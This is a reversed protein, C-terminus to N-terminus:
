SIPTPSPLLPTLEARLEALDPHQLDENFMRWVRPILDVYGPKGGRRSLRAFIGLIRLNRQTAILAAAFHAEDSTMGKATAFRNLCAQAVSPNVDRRADRILSVLDYIPHTAVADQFDLLGVRAEARRKPLWILNEAHYDRLALAPVHDLSQLLTNLTQMAQRAGSSLDTQVQEQYFLFALDSAQAMQAADYRPCGAPPPAKQLSCILDTAACYLSNEKDPDRQIIHAFVADGLDELLLFGHPLDAAIVEPASLGLNHLYTAITHFATIADATDSPDDMLVFPQGNHSLRYYNRASADGALLALSVHAMGNDALFSTIQAARTM